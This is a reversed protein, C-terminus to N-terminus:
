KSGSKKHGIVSLIMVPVLGMAVLLLAAPAAQTLKEDAALRYVQTALTEFNLPRLLLTAPLERAIDIFVIVLGALLAHRGIPWHIDRVVRGPGAGLNRAAFDLGHDIADLGAHANNYGATIFRAAYAYVLLLIGLATLNIGLPTFVTKGVLLIGVAIVAGPLAYGITVIRIGVRTFVSRSVRGLYAFIVALVMIILSAIAAITGTNLAASLFLGTRLNENVFVMKTLLVFLPLFFGFLVPLACIIVAFIQMPVPMSLRMAGRHARVSQSRQGKRAAMELLLLFLAVLFLGGAIQAAAPLDGFGYWTRFIGVSLTPVGLYDSVGYDAAVEMLALTLGGFFAASAGPLIVRRIASVPSAGLARSAELYAASRGSLDARVALYVYPYVALSLILAAGGINFFDPLIATVARRDALSFAEIIFSAFGGFPGFFDGYVYALIYAPFAFPLALLFSFARRGPFETISVLVACVAGFSGAIVAVLVCLKITNVLYGFGNNALLHRMTQGDAIFFSSLVSLVPLILLVGIVAICLIVLPKAGTQVALPGRRVPTTQTKSTM